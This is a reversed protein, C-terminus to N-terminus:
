LHKWRKRNIIMGILSRSVGYEAALDKHLAGTAAHRQRIEQVAIETLTAWSCREGRAFSEPHTIQGCRSSTVRSEPHTHTGHRDGTPMQGREVADRANDKQTGAYLHTPRVCAFVDCHHLISPRGPPPEHGTEIIYSVVHAGRNRGNFYFQGYQRRGYTGGTWLWCAGLMPCHSPVPGNKNVRLWFREGAPRLTRIYVGTPM